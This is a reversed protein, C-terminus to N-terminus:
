LFHHFHPDSYRGGYGRRPFHDVIEGERGCFHCCPITLRPNDLIIDHDIGQTSPTDDVNKKSNRLRRNREQERHAQKGKETQRYKQQAICHAELQAIDRCQDSCYAQGRWCQHCVYFIQGCRRCVITKLLPIKM